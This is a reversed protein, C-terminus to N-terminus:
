VSPDFRDTLGEGGASREEFPEAEPPSPVAMPGDVQAPDRRSRAASALRNRVGDANSSNVDAGRDGEIVIQRGDRDGIPTPM